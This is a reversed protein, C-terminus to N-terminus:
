YESIFYQEDYKPTTPFNFIEDIHMSLIQPLPLPSSPTFSDRNESTSICYLQALQQKDVVGTNMDASDYLSRNLRAHTLCDIHREHEGCEWRVVVGRRKARRKLMREDEASVFLALRDSSCKIVRVTNRAHVHHTDVIRPM